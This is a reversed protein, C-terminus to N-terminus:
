LRRRAARPRRVILVHRDGDARRGGEVPAGPPIPYPGPDSEDGYATFRVPVLPQAPPVVVFPIGYRPNSGFDPHLDEGGDALITAIIASSRPDLPAGSVDRHFEDGAPLVRCRPDPHPGNFRALLTATRGGRSKSCRKGRCARLRYRYVTGPRLGKIRLRHADAGAGARASDDPASVRVRYGREGRARDKWALTIATRGVAVVRLKGPPKLAGSASGSGGVALLAVALLAIPTKRVM